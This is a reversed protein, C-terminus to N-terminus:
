KFIENTSQDTGVVEASMPSNKPRHDNEAPVSPGAERLLDRKKSQEDILARLCCYAM